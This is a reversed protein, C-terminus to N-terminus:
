WFLCIDISVAYYSTSSDTWHTTEQRGFCPSFGRHFHLGPGLFYSKCFYCFCKWFKGLNHLIFRNAIIKSWLLIAFAGKFEICRFDIFFFPGSSIYIISVTNHSFCNASFLVPTVPSVCSNRRKRWLGRRRITRKYSSWWIIIHHENYSTLTTIYKWFIYSKYYNFARYLPALHRLSTGM